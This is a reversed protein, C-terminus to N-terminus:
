LSTVQGVYTFFSAPHTSHGVNTASSVTDDDHGVNTTKSETDTEIVENDISMLQLVILRLRVSTVLVSVPSQKLLTLRRLVIKVSV